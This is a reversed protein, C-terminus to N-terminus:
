GGAPITGNAVLRVAGEFDEREYLRAGFMELERWFFRHLDIEQPRPHVAVLVTAGTHRPVDVASEVGGGRRVSRLGRGRRSGDTEQRVLALM